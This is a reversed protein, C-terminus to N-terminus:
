DDDTGMGLAGNMNDGWCYTASGVIACTRENGAAVATVGTLDVLVARASPSISANGLGGASNQGWCYLLAGRLACQHYGGAALTTRRSGGDGRAGDAAGGDQGGDLVAGDMPPPGGDPVEECGRVVNCREGGSCSADDPRYFCAGDLCTAVACEALPPCDPPGACENPGCGATGPECDATACVGGLCRVASAPDGAGPCSVGACDRTIVVTVATSAHIEVTYQTAAVAAGLLTLSARLAYTGVALDGIEGVRGGDFFDDMRAAGATLMRVPTEGPGPTSDAFLELHIGDFEEGPHLDTRLEVVLEPADSSCGLVSLAVLVLWRAVVM